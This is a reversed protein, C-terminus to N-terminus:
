ARAVAMFPLAAVDPAIRQMVTAARPGQLALLARDEHEEVDYDDGLRDRLHLYDAEKRSANVILVLRDGYNAVMLDDLIGGAENMLLTYRQRGPKLGSIDGPVLRELAAAATAGHLSAQGMHSVDFLAAGTRCARHEAIIGGPYQVPMEYGAFPVM